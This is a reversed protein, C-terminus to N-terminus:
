AAVAAVTRPQGAGGQGGSAGKGGGTEGTTLMARSCM